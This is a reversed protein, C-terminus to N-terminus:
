AAEGVRIAVIGRLGRRVRVRWLWYFMTVVVVLVPLALLAPIRLAQPLEDAQGFFFSATAIYLAFCMRWLHRALRRAGTLAGARIVRLDGVTALLAVTAFKFLVVAPIGERVGGRALADFALGLSVVTLGVAVIMAGFDLRKSTTGRRPRVTALATVVLYATLVGAIASAEGSRAAAISAGSLAMTVMVYVFLLGSRRHLTSGKPTFLAVFGSLIGLSGAVIHVLIVAHV